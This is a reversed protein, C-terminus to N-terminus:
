PNITLAALAKQAAENQADSAIVGQLQKKAPELQGQLALFVSSLVAYDLQQTRSPKAPPALLRNLQGIQKEAQPLDDARLSLSVRALNATLDNPERKLAASVQAEVDQPRNLKDYAKALMLHDRATEQRKLREELVTALEGFRDEKVLVGILMEGAQARAPDLALSRRLMEVTSPDTVFFGVVGLAELAAAASKPNQTLTELRGKVEGLQAAVPAPLSNLGNKLPIERKNSLAFSYLTALAAAGNTSVDGPSLRAITQLDATTEPSILVPYASQAAGAMAMKLTTAENARLSQLLGGLFAAGLRFAMRKTYVQPDRPAVQVAREYSTGAEDLLAQARAMVEPTPRSDLIATLGELSPAAGTQFELGNKNPLVSETGKQLLVEGLANWAPASQPAVEVARRLFEEAQDLQATGQLSTGLQILLTEDEPRAVLAPRLLAVARAYTAKSGKYEKVQSQLRGLEILQEASLPAPMAEIAAIRARKGAEDQPEQSAGGFNFQFGTELRPLPVAARLQVRDIANAVTGTSVLTVVLLATVFLSRVSPRALQGKTQSLKQFPHMLQTSESKATDNPPKGDSPATVLLIIASHSKPVGSLNM